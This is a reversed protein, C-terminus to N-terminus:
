ICDRAARAAGEYEIIQRKYSEMLSQRPTSSTREEALKQKLEKAKAEHEAAVAAFDTM